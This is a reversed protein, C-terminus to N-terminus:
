GRFTEGRAYIGIGDIRFTEGLNNNKFGLRVVRGRGDINKVTIMGGIADWSEDDWSGDDWLMGVEDMMEVNETYQDETDFDYSYVL